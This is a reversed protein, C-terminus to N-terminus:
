SLSDLDGNFKVKSKKKKPVPKPTVTPRPTAVTKKKGKSITLRLTKKSVDFYTKGAPISQAIVTGKAKKSYKTQFRVTLGEDKLKKLNEVASKKELGVYNEITVTYPTATLTPVSTAPMTTQPAAVVPRKNIESKNQFVSIVVVLLVAILGAIIIKSATRGKKREKKKDYFTDIERMIHATNFPHHTTNDKDANAKGSFESLDKKEYLMEFLEDMTQFRDRADVFLGREIVHIEYESLGTGYFEHLPKMHDAIMREVSDDPDIGTIAFYITACLSYVDTFAGQKGRQRCQEIPAYGRKYVLTLEKNRQEEFNRAEGFDILQISGGKTVMLNDPSIDRHIIGEKHIVCLSEIVPKLKTLIDEGKMTGYNRVYKKLSEGEVYEMVIYSISDVVFFDRASAIGDLAYFRAAMKVERQAIKRDKESSNEYEKIAVPVDILTDMAKYTTGFGGSGLTCEIVYRNNLKTGKTLEYGM